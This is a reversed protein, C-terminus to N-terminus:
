EKDTLRRLAASALEGIQVLFDTGMDPVFREPDEAALVLLGFAPAKAEPRLAVLALSGPKEALWRAAEFDTGPGCYPLNLTDAFARTDESVEHNVAEPDAHVPAWTRLVAEQLGFVEDLGLVIAAPLHKPEAESLLRLSWEHLRKSITENTTANNILASLRWELERQRDRLTVIQREGLSIARSQHPHPVELTAFVEAHEQLFNPHAQLFRAVTEATLADQTM